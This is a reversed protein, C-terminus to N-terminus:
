DHPAVEKDPVGTLSLWRTAYIMGRWRYHHVTAQVWTPVGNDVPVPYVLPRPIRTEVWMLEPRGNLIHDRPLTRALRGWLRVHQDTEVEFPGSSVTLMEFPSSTETLVQVAFRDRGISQWRLECDPGCVRGTSFISLDVTAYDTLWVGDAESELYAFGARPVQGIWTELVAQGVDESHFIWGQLTEPSQNMM